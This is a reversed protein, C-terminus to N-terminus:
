VFTGFTVGLQWVLGFYALWPNIHSLPDLCPFFLSVTSYYSSIHIILGLTGNDFLGMIGFDWQGWTGNDWQGLTENDWLGM